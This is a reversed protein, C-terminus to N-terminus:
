EEAEPFLKGRGKERSQVMVFLIAGAGILGLILFVLSQDAGAVSAGTTNEETANAETTRNDTGAGEREGSTGNAERNTEEEEMISVTCVPGRLDAVLKMQATKYESRAIIYIPFTSNKGGLVYLAVERGETPNLSLSDPQLVLEGGGSATLAVHQKTYGDNQVYFIYAGGNCDITAPNRSPHLSLSACRSDQPLVIFIGTDSDSAHGRASAEFEVNERLCWTGHLRLPIVRTEGSSLTLAEPMIKSEVGRLKLAYTDGYFGTNKVSINYVVEQGPCASIEPPIIELDVGYCDMVVAHTTDSDSVYRSIASITLNCDINANPLLISIEKEEGPELHVATQNLSGACGSISLNYDDAVCGRNKVRATYILGADPCTKFEEPSSVSVSYCNMLNVKFSKQVGGTPTPSSAQILGVLINYSGYERGISRITLSVIRSEGPALAIMGSNFSIQLSSPINSVYLRYSDKKEGNNKIVVDVREIDDECMDVSPQLVTLDAAYCDRIWFVSDDSDKAGNGKATITIRHEGISQQQLTFTARIKESEYPGVTVFSPMDASLPLDSSYTLYITRQQDYINTIKIDYSIEEGQCVNTNVPIVQLMCDNCAAQAMGVFLLALIPIIGRMKKM